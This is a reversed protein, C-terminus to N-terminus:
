QPGGTVGEPPESLQAACKGDQCFCRGGCDLTGYRCEQTCMTGECDPANAKAVCTDPHCCGGPVCDADTECPQDESVVIEPGDDGPQEGSTGTGQEPAEGVPPTEPGPAATPPPEVSPPEAAPEEAPPEEIRISQGEDNTTSGCAALLFISTLLAIAITPRHM